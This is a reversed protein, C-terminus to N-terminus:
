RVAGQPGSSLMRAQKPWKQPWLRIFQPLDDTEVEDEGAEIRRAASVGARRVSDPDGSLLPHWPPLDRGELRLRYACSPPLWRIKVLKSLTLRVCDPVITKRGSYDRCRCSQRDLLKCAVSTHHIRGTDEDELKILCCRGCGDCLREWQARTMEALPKKWFPATASDKETM